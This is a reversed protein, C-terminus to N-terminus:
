LFYSANHMMGIEIFYLRFKSLILAINPCTNCILRSNLSINWDDGIIATWWRTFLTWIRLNKQDTNEHIRVSYPSKSRLDGYETRNCSFVSWFFSRIEISKVCHVFICIKLLNNSAICNFVIFLYNFRDIFKM